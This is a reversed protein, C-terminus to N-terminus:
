ADKEKRAEEHRRQETQWREDERAEDKDLEERRRELEERRQRLSAIAQDHRAEAKEFEANARAILREREKRIREREAEKRKEDLAQRKRERELAAAQEKEERERLAAQEKRGKELAAAQRAKEAQTAKEMHKSQEDAEGGAQEKAGRTKADSPKRKEEPAKPLTAHEGFAGDSGVPRRLVTGPAAMAAEVAKPDDTEEAFGRKFVDPDAGWAEAAAKMSPAAVALEFFGGATTRYVKLKRAM